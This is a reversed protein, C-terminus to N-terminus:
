PWSNKDKDLPKRVESTQTNPEKLLTDKIPLDKTNHGSDVLIPEVTCVYMWIYMGCDTCAHYICHFRQYLVRRSLSLRGVFSVRKSGKGM